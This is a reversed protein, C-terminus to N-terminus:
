TTLISQRTQVPDSRSQTLLRLLHEQREVLAQPKADDHACSLTGFGHQLIGQLLAVDDRWRWNPTPLNSELAKAPLLKPLSLVLDGRHECVERLACLQRLRRCAVANRQAIESKSANHGGAWQAAQETIVTPLGRNERQESQAAVLNKMFDADDEEAFPLLALCLAHEGLAVDGASHETCFRQRVEACRAVGLSLMARALLDFPLSPLPLSLSVGLEQQVRSRKAWSSPAFYVFRHVCTSCPIRVSDGHQLPVRAGRAYHCSADDGNIFVGSNGRVFLTMVAGCNQEGAQGQSLLVRLRLHVRQISGCTAVAVDVNNTGPASPNGLTMPTRSLPHKWSTSAAGRAWLWGCDGSM